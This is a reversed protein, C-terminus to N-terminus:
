LPLTASFVLRNGTTITGRFTLASTVSLDRLNGTGWDYCRIVSIAATPTYGTVFPGSIVTGTAGTGATLDGYIQLHNDVTKRYKLTGSWGNILTADIWDETWMNQRRNQIKATGIATDGAAVYITAILQGGAPTAPQAPSAAATGALYAIVGSSNIYVIDIRPNTADAATVALANNASPTFRVGSAMWIIGTAVRVTMDPSAQQTVGLGSVVGYSTKETNLLAMQALQAGTEQLAAEVNDSTFYEGTDALSITAPDAVSAQTLFNLRNSLPM